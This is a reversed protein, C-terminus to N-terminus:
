RPLIHHKVHVHTPELRDHRCNPLLLREMEVYVYVSSDPRGRSTLSVEGGGLFFRDTFLFPGGLFPHRKLNNSRHRVQAFDEPEMAELSKRYAPDHQAVEPVFPAFRDDPDFAEVM